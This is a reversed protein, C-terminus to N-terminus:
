ELIISKFCKESKFIFTLNSSALQIQRERNQYKFFCVFYYSIFFKSCLHRKGFDITQFM